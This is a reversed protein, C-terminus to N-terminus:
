SHPRLTFFVTFEGATRGGYFPQLTPPVIAVGLSGGIGSRTGRGEFLWRTYGFSLKAVRFTADNPSPLVLEAATKDVVEGRAFITDDRHIDSATEALLASSAVGGERNRGWALTTAWLRSNLLRHYTASATVRDVDERPGTASFEAQTLHGASVQVAWNSTPLIWLRGSYSDLRGFDFDYRQDDPERGNFVSGEAKWKRGYVGVTAVGFSIHTSDLWHHSIPAIPDPMASLRHPFATPGLAPEGAPGGYLEFAISQSIAHKYDAAFEMFLDHPHQRDHLPAGDCFEGSQLLSPYGCKGVTLPELSLMGRFQLQGGVVPRQAMAMIWNVSGFQRDGRDGTTKIDEVIANGHLMLTWPGAQRMVGQMPSADPLWSTGSGDRTHDIGLPNELMAMSMQMQGQPMPMGGQNPPQTPTQAFTASPSVLLALLFLAFSRPRM